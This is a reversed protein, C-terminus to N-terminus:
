RERVKMIIKNSNFFLHGSQINCGPKADSGLIYGAYIGKTKTLREDITLINATFPYLAGNFYLYWKMKPINEDIDLVIRDVNKEGEYGLTVNSPICDKNSQIIINIDVRM